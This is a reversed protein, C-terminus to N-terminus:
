RPHASSALICPYGELAVLQEAIKSIALALAVASSARFVLDGDLFAQPLLTAWAKVVPANPHSLARGTSDQVYNPIVFFEFGM